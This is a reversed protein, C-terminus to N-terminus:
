YETYGKTGTIDRVLYLFLSRVHKYLVSDFQYISFFSKNNTEMNCSPLMTLSLLVQPFKM